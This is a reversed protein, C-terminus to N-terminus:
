FCLGIIFSYFTCTFSIVNFIMSSDMTPPIYLVNSSYLKTKTINNYNYYTLISPPLPIGYNPPHPIEELPLFNPKYNIKYIITTKSPITINTISLSIINKNKYYNNSKEINYIINDKWEQNNINKHNTHNYLVISM